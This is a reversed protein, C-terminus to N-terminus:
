KWLRGKRLLKNLSATMHAYQHIFKQYYNVLGLFGRVEKQNQSVSWKSVAEVKGSDMKVQGKGVIFGLYGVEEEWVHM